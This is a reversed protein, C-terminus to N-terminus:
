PCYNDGWTVLNKETKCAGATFFHASKTHVLKRALHELPKLIHTRIWQFFRSNIGDSMAEMNPNLLHKNIKAILLNCYSKDSLPSPASPENPHKSIYQKNTEQFDSYISMLKRLRPDISDLIPEIEKLDISLFSKKSNPNILLSDRSHKLTTIQQPTLKKTRHSDIYKDFIRVYEGQLKNLLDLSKKYYDTQLRNEIASASEILTNRLNIQYDIAKKKTNYNKKWTALGIGPTSNLQNIHSIFNNLCTKSTSGVKVLDNCFPNITNLDEIIEDLSATISGNSYFEITNELVELNPIKNLVADKVRKTHAKLATIHQKVDEDIQALSDQRAELTVVFENHPRLTDIIAATPKQQHADFLLAAETDKIEQDLETKFATKEKQYFDRLDLLLTQISHEQINNELTQLATQIHKQKDLRTQTEQQLQNIQEFSKIEILPPRLKSDEEFATELDTLDAQLTRLQNSRDTARSPLVTNFGQVPIPAAHSAIHTLFETIKLKLQGLQENITIKNADIENRQQAMNHQILFCNAIEEIPFSNLKKLTYRIQAIKEKLLSANSEPIEKKLKSLFDDVLSPKEDASSKFLNNLLVEVSHKTHNRRSTVTLIEPLHNILEDETTNPTLTSLCPLSDAAITEIQRKKAPNQVAYKLVYSEGSKFRRLISNDKEIKVIFDNPGIPIQTLNDQTLSLTYNPTAELSPFKADFDLFDSSEGLHHCLARKLQKVTDTDGIPHKGAALAGILTNVFDQLLKTFYRMEVNNKQVKIQIFVLLLAELKNTLVSLDSQQMVNLECENNTQPYITEITSALKKRESNCATLKQIAICLTRGLTMLDADGLDAVHADVLPTIDKRIIQQAKITAEHYTSLCSVLENSCLNDVPPKKFTHENNTLTSDTDKAEQLFLKLKQLQFNLVPNQVQTLDDRDMILTLKTNKKPSEPRDIVPTLLLIFKEWQTNVWTVELTTETPWQCHWSLQYYRAAAELHNLITKNCDYVLQRLSTEDLDPIEDNTKSANILDDVRKKIKILSDTQSILLQKFITEILSNLPELQTIIDQPTLNM